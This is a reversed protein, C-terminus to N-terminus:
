TKGLLVAAQETKNEFFNIVACTNEFQRSNSPIDILPATKKSFQERVM